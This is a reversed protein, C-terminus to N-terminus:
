AGEAPGFLDPHRAAYRESFRTWPLAVGFNAARGPSRRLRAHEAYALRRYARSAPGDPPPGAAADWSLREEVVALLDDADLDAVALGAAEIEAAGPLHMVDRALVEAIPLVRGSSRDVFRKPAILDRPMQILMPVLMANAMLSPTGLAYALGLPGSSANMMFRSRAIAAPALVPRAARLAAGDVVRPGLDPLPTMTEDGIRVVHFGERALRELAPVYTLIDANRFDQAAYGPLYGAERCHVTVLPAGPPVGLEALLADGAAAQAPSLTAHCPRGGELLHRHLDRYLLASGDARLLLGHPDAHLLGFAHDAYHYLPRMAPVDPLPLLHMGRTSLAVSDRFLSTALTLFREFALVLVEWGQALYLTRLAFMETTIQGIRTPLGHLYAVCRGRAAADALRPTRAVHHLAAARILVLANQVADDPPRTDPDDPPASM